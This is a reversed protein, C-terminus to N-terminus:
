KGVKYIRYQGADAIIVNGSLDVAAIPSIFHAQVAPCGNGPTLTGGGAVTSIIGSTNIKRIRKNAFDSIYVNGDNDIAINRPDGLQAATAPGGDGSSGATGTGAVTSIIGATNIKRVCDHPYSSFYINGANDVAIGSPWGIAADTAMGGDGTFGEIGNGAITSIIGASNVKRIRCGHEEGIYVNGSNDTAIHLDGLLASATAQGGDGSFGYSGTGAFTTIIGSTNVIYVTSTSRDGIYVNGANDTAIHKPNIWASTAPAGEHYDGSVSGAFKSIIGNSNIRRIYQTGDIIYINGTKDVAIDYPSYLGAATAAGGDGSYGSTGNGAITTIIGSTGSSTSKKKHCGAIAIFSLLM